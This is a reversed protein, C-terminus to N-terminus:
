SGLKAKSTEATDKENGGSSEKIDKIHDSHFRKICYALNEM